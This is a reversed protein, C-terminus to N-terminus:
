AFLPAPKRHRVQDRSAVGAQAFMRPRDDRRTITPKVSEDEAFVDIEVKGRVTALSKKQEVRLGTERLIQAVRNELDEWTAPVADEILALM